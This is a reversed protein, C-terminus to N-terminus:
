FTPYNEQVYAQMQYWLEVEQQNEVANKLPFLGGKGSPAYARELWTEVLILNEKKKEEANPDNPHFPILGLNAIMEWFWRSVKCGKSRRDILIYDMREALGIIVELVTTPKHILYELIDNNYGELESFVERLRKGDAARNEDNPVLYYYEIEFLCSLLFCHDEGIDRRNVRDCLWDFYKQQIEVGDRSNIRKMRM